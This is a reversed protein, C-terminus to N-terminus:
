WWNLFFCYWFLDWWLRLSFLIVLFLFFNSLILIECYQWFCIFLILYKIKIYQIDFLHCRLFFQNKFCFLSKRCILFFLRFDYCLIKFDNKISICHCHLVYQWGRCYYWECWWNDSFCYLSLFCFSQLSDIKYLVLLNSVLFHVNCCCLIGLHFWACYKLLVPFVLFLLPSQHQIM